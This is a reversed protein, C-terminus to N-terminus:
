FTVPNGDILRAFAACSTTPTNTNSAAEWSGFSVLPVHAAVTRAGGLKAIPYGM